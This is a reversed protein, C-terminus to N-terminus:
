ERAKMAVIKPSQKTAHPLSAHLAQRVHVPATPRDFAPAGSLYSGLDTPEASVPKDSDVAAIWKGSSYSKSAVTSPRRAHAPQSGLLIATALALCGTATIHTTRAM